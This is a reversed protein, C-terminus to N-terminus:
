NQAAFISRDHKYLYKQKEYPQSQHNEPGIIQYIACRGDGAAEAEALKDDAEGDHAHSCRCRFHHHTEDASRLAVCVNGQTVDHAGVNEVRQENQANGGQEEGHFDGPLVPFFVDGDIDDNGDQENQQSQFVRNEAKPCVTEAAHVAGDQHGQEWSLSALGM